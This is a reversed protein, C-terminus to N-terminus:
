NFNFNINNKAMNMKLREMFPNRTGDIFKYVNMSDQNCNIENCFQKLENLTYKEDPFRNVKMLCLYIYNLKLVLIKKIFEKYFEESADISICMFYFRKLNKMKDINNYINNLLENNIIRDNVCTFEFTNLNHFIIPCISNFIPFFTKINKINRDIIFDVKKLNTFPGVFLEVNANGIGSISLENLKNNNNENIILSADGFEMLYFPFRLNLTLLNPFKNQFDYLSCNESDVMWILTLEKVSNNTGPINSLEEPTINYNILNIKELTKISIIKKFINEETLLDNESILNLKKLPNNNDLKMFGEAKGKFNKLKKIMSFDIIENSCNVLDLKCIELEPCIMLKNPKSITCNKLNLKTLNPYNDSFTINNVKFCKIEKLNSLDLEFNPEFNIGSLGLFLLAKLNNIDSFIQDTLTVGEDNERYFDLNLYTLNKDINNLKFLTNFFYEFEYFCYQINIYLRQIQNININFDKIYDIKRPDELYLSLSAYKAKKDNLKKFFEIYNSKLNLSSIQQEILVISFIKQFIEEQCIHGFLPSNIDILIDKPTRIYKDGDFIYEDNKNKIKLKRFYNYAIEKIITDNLDINNEELKEKYKQILFNKNQIIKNNEITFSNNGEMSYNISLFKKWDINFKEIYKEQYNFLTIDLEKQIQKSYKFLKLKRLSSINDIITKLLYSSNIIKLYSKQSM